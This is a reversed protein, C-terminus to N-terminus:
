PPRGLEYRLEVQRVAHDQVQQADLLQADLVDHLAAEGLRAGLFVPGFVFPSQGPRNAGPFPPNQPLLTDLDFLRSSCLLTCERVPLWKSFRKYDNVNTISKQEM